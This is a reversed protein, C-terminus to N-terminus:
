SFLDLVCEVEKIKKKKLLDLFGFSENDAQLPLKKDILEKM